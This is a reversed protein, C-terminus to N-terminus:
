PRIPCSLVSIIFRSKKRHHPPNNKILKTFHPLLPLVKAAVLTRLIFLPRGGGAAKGSTASETGANKSKHKPILSTYDGRHPRTARTSADFGRKPQRLLGASFEQWLCSPPPIFRICRAIGLFQKSGGAVLIYKTTKLLCFL